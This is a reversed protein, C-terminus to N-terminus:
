LPLFYVNPAQTARAGEGANVTASVFKVAASSRQNASIKTTKGIRTRRRSDAAFSTRV